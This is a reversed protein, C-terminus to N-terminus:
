EPVGVEYVGTSDKVTVTVSRKQGDILMNCVFTSGTKVPQDPPCTVDTVDSKGYGAPPAATLIQEVGKAVKAADFVRADPPTSTQTVTREVRKTVTHESTVTVTTLMTQTTATPSGAATVTVTVTTPLGVAAVGATGGTQAACAVGLACWGVGAAVAIWRRM